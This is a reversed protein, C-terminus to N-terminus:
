TLDKVGATKLPLPSHLSYYLGPQPYYLFFTPQAPEASFSSLPTLSPEYPSFHHALWIGQNFAADLDRPIVSFKQLEHFSSSTSKAFLCSDFLKQFGPQLLLRVLIM